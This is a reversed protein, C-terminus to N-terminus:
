DEYKKASDRSIRDKENLLTRLKREVREITNNYRDLM